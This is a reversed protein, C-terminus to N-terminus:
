KLRSLILSQNYDLLPNIVSKWVIIAHSINLNKTYQKLQKIRMNM